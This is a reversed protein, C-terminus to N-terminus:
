MEAPVSTTLRPCSHVDHGPKDCIVCHRPKRATELVPTRANAGQRPGVLGDLVSPYSRDTSDDWGRSLRSTSPAPTAGAAAPSATTWTPPRRPGRHDASIATVRSNRPDSANWEPSASTYTQYTRPPMRVPPSKLIQVMGRKTLRESGACGRLYDAAQEESLGFTESLGSGVMRLYNSHPQNTRTFSRGRSAATVADRASFSGTFTFVPAGAYDGVHVLRGYLGPSVEVEGDALAKTTDTRISGVPKANEQSVVDDFQSMTINYARGLAHGATDTDLFAVGGGGWRGSSIAFHMRGAFRIPIDGTPLTKDRCGAHVSSSGAPTGGQIYTLFRDRALNSGYSAYWVRSPRGDPGYQYKDKQSGPPELDVVAGKLDKMLAEQRARQEIRRLAYFVGPPLHEDHAQNLERISREKRTDSMPAHRILVRMRQEWESRELLSPEALDAGERRLSHFLRQIAPRPLGSYVGALRLTLVGASTTYCSM